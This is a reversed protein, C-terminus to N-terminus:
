LGLINPSSKIHSKRGAEYLFSMSFLPCLFPFCSFHKRDETPDDTSNDDAVFGGVVLIDLAGPDESVTEPSVMEVRPTSTM